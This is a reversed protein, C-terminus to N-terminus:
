KAPAPAPAPEPEDPRQMAERRLELRALAAREAKLESYRAFLSQFDRRANAAIEDILNEMRQAEKRSIPVASEARRGASLEEIQDYRQRKLTRVRELDGEIQQKQEPTKAAALKTKLTREEVDLRALSKELGDIIEKAAADTQRTARKNQDYDPNRYISSGGWGWWNNNSETHYQEYEKYSDMSMALDVIGEIRKNIREDFASRDKFLDAREFKNKSTRLSESVTARKQAYYEAAKQLKEMVERKLRAVATKSDKSDTVRKLMEQVDNIASEIGADLEVIQNVLTTIREQRAAIQRDIAALAPAADPAPAAAPAAPTAPPAADQALAAIPFPLLAALLLAPKMPTLAPIFTFADPADPQRRSM